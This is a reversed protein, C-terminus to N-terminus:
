EDHAQVAENRLALTIKAKFDAPFRTPRYSKDLCVVTGKAELVHERNPLKYISHEFFLRVASSGTIKVAVM